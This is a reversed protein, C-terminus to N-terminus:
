HKLERLYDLRSMVHGSAKGAVTKDMDYLMVDDRKAYDGFRIWNDLYTDGSKTMDGHVLDAYLKVVDRIDKFKEDRQQRMVAFHDNHRQQDDRVCLVTLAGLDQLTKDLWWAGMDYAPGGRFIQGYIQESLWLRDIVVLYDEALRRAYRFAAVHRKWVDRHVGNHIYRAGYRDILRRALTTKGSCDGGELIIIGRVAM